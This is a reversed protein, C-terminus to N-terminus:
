TKILYNVTLWPVKTAVVGAAMHYRTTSGDSILANVNGGSLASMTVQYGSGCDTKTGGNNQNHAHNNTRSAAALADNDGLADNDTHSGKGVPARGQLDPVNFTTSGNGAGYTTGIATFLDAYTTRSVAAGDCLLFGTPASAGAYPILAGSPLAGTSGAHTHNGAAAQTAGTGLTRLSATGAAGDKNASAIDADTLSGDLIQSASLKTTAM